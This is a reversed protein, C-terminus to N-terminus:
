GNEGGPEVTHRGGNSLYVYTQFKIDAMLIAHLDIWRGKYMFNRKEETDSLETTTMYFSIGPRANGSKLSPDVLYTATSQSVNIPTQDSPGRRRQHGPISKQKNYFAAAEDETYDGGLFFQLSEIFDYHIVVEQRAGEAPFTTKPM